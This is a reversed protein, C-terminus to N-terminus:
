PNYGWENFSNGDTYLDSAKVILKIVKGHKGPGELNHAHDKAYTQSVAVWDGPRIDKVKPPVARYITVKGDPKGKMSKIVSMSEADAAIGDAYDRLSSYVDSPYVDNLTLDHLPAGDKNPATHQMRYDSAIHKLMYAVRSIRAKIDM